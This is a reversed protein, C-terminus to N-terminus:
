WRTCWERHFTTKIEPSCLNTKLSSEPRKLRKLRFCFCMYWRKIFIIHVSIRHACGISFYTNVMKQSRARPQQQHTSMQIGLYDSFM